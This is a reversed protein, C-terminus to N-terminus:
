EEWNRHIRDAMKKLRNRVAAETVGDERAIETATMREGYFRHFLEWQQPLLSEMARSLIELNRNPMDTKSTSGFLVNEPSSSSDALRGNHSSGGDAEQAHADLPCTNDDEHRQTTHAADDFSHLIEIHAETITKNDIPSVQGPTITTKRGDATYYIYNTRNKQSTKFQRTMAQRRLNELDSKSFGCSRGTDAHAIFLSPM